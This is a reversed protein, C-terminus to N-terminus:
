KGAGNRQIGKILHSIGAWLLVEGFVGIILLERFWFAAFQWFGPREGGPYQYVFSIVMGLILAGVFLVLVAVERRQIKRSTPALDIDLDTSAKATPKHM